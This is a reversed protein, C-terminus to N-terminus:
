VNEHPGGKRAGSAVVIKFHTSVIGKDRLIKGCVNATYNSNAGGSGNENEGSQETGWWPGGQDRTEQHTQGCLPVSLLDSSSSFSTLTNAGTGGGQQTVWRLSTAIRWWLCSSRGVAEGKRGEGQERLGPSPFAGHKNAGPCQGNKTPKGFGTNRLRKNKM